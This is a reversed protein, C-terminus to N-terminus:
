GDWIRPTVHGSWGPDRSPFSVSGPFSTPDFGAFGVSLHSGLMGTLKIHSDASM